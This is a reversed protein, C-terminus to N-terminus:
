RKPRVAVPKVTAKLLGIAVEEMKTKPPVVAAPIWLTVKVPATEPGTLPESM